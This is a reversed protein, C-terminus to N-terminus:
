QRSTYHWIQGSDGVAWGEVSSLMSLGRLAPAVPNTGGVVPQWTTGNWHAILGRAGVLWGENPSLLRVGYSAYDADGPLAVYENGGTPKWCPVVQPSQCLDEYHPYNLMGINREGVAWGYWPERSDAPNPILDIAFLDQDTLAYGQVEWGFITYKVVLGGDGVAWGRQGDPQIFIANVNKVNAPSYRDPVWRGNTLRIFDSPRYLGDVGPLYQSAMWGEGTDTLAVATFKDGPLVDGSDDYPSWEGNTYHLITHQDGVAWGETISSMDISLLTAGRSETYQLSWTQGDYFLVTGNTGVAWGHTSDVFDVAYLDVEALDAPLSVQRWVPTRILTPSPTVTATATSTPTTQRVTATGSPTVTSTLTPPTTVTATATPSATTTATPTATAIQTPTPTRILLATPSATPTRTATATVTPTATPLASATSTASPIATETLTATNTATPSTTPIPTATQTPTAISTPEDTPTPSLSVEHTPTTRPTLTPQAESWSFLALPIYIYSLRPPTATPTMAITPPPSLTPTSTVQMTPTATRTPTETPTLTSSATPTPSPAPTNTPSPTHTPFVKTATPSNLVLTPPPTPSATPSPSPTASPPITATPTAAPSPTASPTASPVLTETPTVTPSPTDTPTVTPSSSPTATPEVFPRFLSIGGAVLGVWMEGGASATLTAVNGEALGAGGPVDTWSQGDWVHLGGSSRDATVSGRATGAWVRGASDVALASVSGERPFTWSQWTTGDYRSVSADVHPSDCELCSGSYVWSGFWVNGAQDLAVSRLSNEYSQLGSNRNTYKKWVTGDFEAAGGGGRTGGPGTYPATAVWVKCVGPQIAIGTINNSPLGDNVTYTRWTNTAPNFVSLGAGSSDRLSGTGIWIRGGCEPPEVAVASVDDNVLGSNSSRYVTWTGNTYVSLGGDTWNSGDWTNRHTGVWVRRQADIAIGSVRNSALGPSVVYVPDDLPVNQALPPDISIAKLTSYFSRYRYITRHSGFMLYGTSFAANAEAASNLRVYVITTYAAAAKSVTTKQDGRMYSAADFVSWTGDPARISLGMGTGLDTLDGSGAWVSGDVDLAIGTVRNSRLSAAGMLYRAWTGTGTEFVALGYGEGHFDTLGFWVQSGTALLTTVTDMPLGNASNYRTWVDDSTDSLTDKYDLVSVGRGNGAEDASAVWIRNDSSYALASIFNSALGQSTQTFRTWRSIGALANLGGGWTGFWKQGRADVIVSTVSNHSPFSNADTAQHQYVTWTNGNWMAIGGSGPDPAWRGPHTDTPPFWVYQPVFTAWIANTGSDVALDTVRNSPLGTFVKRFSDYGYTYVTWRVGDFRAIGGGTWGQDWYQQTAIWVVGDSGIAIAHVDDSPLQGNTTARSYTQWTTGDASLVSVGRNTGFWRNGNADIAISRVRNGALGDQPYLYQRALTYGGTDTRVWQLVGGGDTAAWLTTGDRDVALRLVRDGNAITSWQGADTISGASVPRQPELSGALWTLGILLLLLIRLSIPSWRLDM